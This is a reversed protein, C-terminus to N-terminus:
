TRRKGTPDGPAAGASHSVIGDAAIDQDIFQAPV